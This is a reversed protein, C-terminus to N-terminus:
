SVARIIEKHAIQGAGFLLYVFDAITQSSKAM